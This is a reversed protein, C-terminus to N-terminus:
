FIFSAGRKGFEQCVLAPKLAAENTGCKLPESTATQLAVEVSQKSCMRHALTEVCPQDKRPHFFSRRNM